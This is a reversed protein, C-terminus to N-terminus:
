AGSRVFRQETVLSGWQSGPNEYELRFNHSEYLHRAASLGAFTWLYTSPYECKDVFRMANQMMTKGIGIGKVSDSIIFWRLHAGNERARAGDIALSGEINGNQRVLWIGDRGSEYNRCFEALERAVKAEFELGFGTSLSYYDAHLQTIRGICGPVYGETITTSM